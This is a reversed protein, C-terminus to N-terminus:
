GRFCTMDFCWLLAMFPVLVFWTNEIGTYVAHYQIKRENKKQFWHHENNYTNPIKRHNLQWKDCETFWFELSSLESEFESSRSSSSLLFVFSTALYKANHTWVHFKTVSFNLRNKISKNLLFACLGYSVLCKSVLSFFNIKRVANLVSCPIYCFLLILYFLQLKHYKKLAIFLMFSAFLLITRYNIM